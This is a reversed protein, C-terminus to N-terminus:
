APPHLDRRMLWFTPFPREFFWDRQRPAPLEDGQFIGPLVDRLKRLGLVFRRFPLGRHFNQHKDRPEIARCHHRADADHFRQVAVDLAYEIWIAFVRM